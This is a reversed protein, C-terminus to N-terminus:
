RPKEEVAFDASLADIEDQLESLRDNLGDMQHDLLAPDAGSDEMQSLQQLHLLMKANESYQRVHRVLQIGGNPPSGKGKETKAAPLRGDGSFWDLASVTNTTRGPLLEVDGFPYGSFLLLGPPIDLAAALVFLEAVSLVSGRHGSDLKAIVTPSVRYGLAATEDSLQRASKSGRAKKM